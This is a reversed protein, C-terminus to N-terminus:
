AHAGFVTRRDSGRRQWVAPMGHLDHLADLGTRGRRPAESFAGDLRRYLDARLARARAEDERLADVLLGRLQVLDDVDAAARIRRGLFAGKHESLDETARLFLQKMEVFARRAAIRAARDQPLGADVITPQFESDIDLELDLELELDLHTPPFRLNDSL